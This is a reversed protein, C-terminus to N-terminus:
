EVATFEEAVDSCDMYGSFADRQIPSVCYGLVGAGDCWICSNGSKDHRTACDEKQADLGNNSVLDGLCSPDLTEWGEVSIGDNNGRLHQTNKEAVVEEIIQEFGRCMWSISSADSNTICGGGVLPVPCWVCKQGTSSTADTKALCTDEDSIMRSSDDMACSFAGSFGNDPEPAGHPTTVPSPTPIKSPPPSMPPEIPVPLPNLPPAVPPTAPSDPVESDSGEVCLQDWYAGLIEKIDGNVCVGGSGTLSSLDCWLCPQSNADTQTTCTSEDILSPQDSALDVSCKLQDTWTGSGPQDRLSEEARTVALIFISSILATKILATKM